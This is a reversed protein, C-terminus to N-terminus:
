REKTEEVAISDLTALNYPFILGYDEAKELEFNCHFQIELIQSAGSKSKGIDEPIKGKSYQRRRKREISHTYKV